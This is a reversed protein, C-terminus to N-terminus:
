PAAHASVNEQQIADFGPPFKRWPNDSKGAEFGVQFLAKMYRGEFPTNLTQTFTEPINALNFDVGDRSAVTYMRYLDGIGQTQILTTIARGAISFTRRSVQSWNPDLRANRIVYLKRNRTLGATQSLRRLNYAPPYVFVQASAGGDVHMEEYTRGESEVTIMSPPFAGPIAASALLIDEILKLAGPARSSAIKGINWIVPRGADLNTTGILLLRGRSYQAAIGELLAQDLFRAVTKRLPLNDAMGDDLVAALYNRESLVDKATIGTYIETLQPDYASGMFAFPATLAGTSIGTVLKFTPRTGAATWGVLLGAGFAGDEGGGSIALFNADPLPGSLGASQRYALERQVSALGEQILQPSAEDGWYRIDQLGIVSVEGQPAAPVANLRALPGCGALLSMSAVNKLLHRRAAAPFESQQKPRGHTVVSGAIKDM